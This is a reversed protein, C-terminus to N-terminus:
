QDLGHKKKGSKPRHTGLTASAFASTALNEERRLRMIGVPLKEARGGITAPGALSPTLPAPKSFWLVFMVEAVLGMHLPDLLPALSM